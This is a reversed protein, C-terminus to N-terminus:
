PRAVRVRYRVGPAGQRCTPLVVAVDLARTAGAAPLVLVAAPGGRFTGQDVALPRAGARGLGVLCSRLAAPDALPSTPPRATASGGGPAELTGPSPPTPGAGGVGSPGPSAVRLDPQADEQARPAVAEPRVETGTAGGALLDGVADPLGPGTYARGSATVAVTGSAARDGSSDSGLSAGQPPGDAGDDGLVVVAGFVVALGAAAAGLRSLDRGRPRRPRRALPVVGTGGAVDDGVNATGGEPSSAAAARLATDLRDAVPAPAPEDPLAALMASVDALADRVDRCEACVVLHREAEGARSPDLLGEALDAVEDASLHPGSM